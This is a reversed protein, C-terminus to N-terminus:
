NYLADYLYMFSFIFFACSGGLLVTRMSIKKALLHGCVVAISTCILHGICGGLIVLVYDGGAALAITAIQSRDGWEGLFTMMFIQIWIPSLAYTALNKLQECPSKKKTYEKESKDATEISNRENLMQVSFEEEVEAMEKEIGQDKNVIFAERLLNFGFVLFLFSAAFRTITPSLLTPLVHGIVASLFTMLVLASAAASFVTLRPHRMAMLAAILFTKDGIESVLIMSISMYFPETHQGKFEEDLLLLENLPKPRAIDAIQTSTPAHFSYVLSSLILVPLLTSILKM